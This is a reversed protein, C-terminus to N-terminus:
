CLRVCKVGRLRSEKGGRGGQIVVVPPRYKLPSQLVSRSGIHNQPPEGSYFACIGFIPTGIGHM